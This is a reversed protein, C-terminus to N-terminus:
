KSLLKKTRRIVAELEKDSSVQQRLQSRAQDVFKQVPVVIRIKPRREQKAVKKFPMNM